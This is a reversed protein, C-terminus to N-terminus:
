GTAAVFMNFKLVTDIGSGDQKFTHFWVPGVFRAQFCGANM